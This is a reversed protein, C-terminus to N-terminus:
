EGTMQVQIHYPSMESPFEKVPICTLYFRGRTHRPIHTSIIMNKDLCLEIKAYAFIIRSPLIRNKCLCFFEAYAFNSKQRPLFIEAYALNSYQM